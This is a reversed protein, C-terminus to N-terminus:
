ADALAQDLRALVERHESLRSTAGRVTMRGSTLATSASLEGRAIAEATERDQAFTVDPAEAHGPRVAVGEPALEVHWAVDGVVQQIVFREDSGPLGRAAENLAAVWEPSFRDPMLIV